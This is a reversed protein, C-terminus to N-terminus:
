VERKKAMKLMEASIPVIDMKLQEYVRQTAKSQTEHPATEATISVQVDLTEYQRVSHKRIVSVTVSGVLPEEEAKKSKKTPPTKM